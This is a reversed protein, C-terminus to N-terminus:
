LLRLTLDFLSRNRALANSPLLNCHPRRAVSTGAGTADFRVNDYEHLVM